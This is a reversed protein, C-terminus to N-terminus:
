GGGQTHSAFKEPLGLLAVLWDLVHTELETCAPSTQWLMGQVGLGAALLEGLISPYSNNAPFFAYFQPSQWHTIGPLICHQFDAWIQEFPEPHQPPDGPLQARVAGPAVPALVPYREGHELYDAIWDILRYGWTRFEEAQMASPTPNSGM